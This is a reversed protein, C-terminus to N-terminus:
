TRSSSSPRSCSCSGTGRPPRGSCTARPRPRAYELLPGEHIMTLELHTDPNDIPQRGTEALVVLAFGVAGLALAPSVDLRRQGRDRRGHGSTPAHRRCRRSPWRRARVPGRHVRSITLDRSAGLLAFGNGHGVVRRRDRLARAGAPRGARAADHGLGWDPADGAVPVLLVGRRLAAAVVPPALRYVLSTGAVDICARAWLRRLERYPQLPSPGRRGQLRAKSHQVLRPAAARARDGAVQVAPPQAAASVRHTRHAGARAPRRRARASLRRLRDPQRDAAPPRARAGCASRPDPRYLHTDFLHPVDGEYRVEQVVGGRVSSRDRAAPAARGRARAAAAEHLRREDLELEPQVLQGCAWSPAPAARRPGRRSSSRRQSSRSWRSGPAPLLGAGRCTSASADARRGDAVPRPGRAARRARGPVLGLVVCAAALAAVAAWMPLPAEGGGRSAGPAAPRAARARRGQRLVAGRAGRDRRAGGLAVAGALGAAVGGNGPVALLAQLTLWESAFGNLPPLGAIAIAGVLFAGGTWPMRRLLGGIRDIELPGGRARIRGRRPLAPRSSRTTSPTCSRPRSRSVGGLGAGRERLLSAPASASCSSGSTRSRTSRSCGSSSTSSSARLRRRDGGIRRGRRSRPRRVVDAARRAVRLPRPRARLDRDQDDRREHAGLRAGPRDPARASALHAAPRPRGEHGDRRAGRPRDRDAHRLRGRDRRRRRLCGGGRPAAGRDLHRGGHPAHRQHLRVRTRASRDHRRLLIIAAPVLTMLEWGALFATPGRASCSRWCSCSAATLARDRPGAPDPSLYRTAFFLAPAGVPGLVFLFFGSTPDVGLRPEFSSTFSAGFEDGSAFVALGAVGVLAMSSGTCRARSSRGPAARLASGSGGRRAGHRSANRVYPRLGVRPAVPCM